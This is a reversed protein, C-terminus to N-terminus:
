RSIRFVVQCDRDDAQEYRNIFDTLDINVDYSILFSDVSELGLVNGNKEVTICRDNALITVEASVGRAVSSFVASFLVAFAVLSAM